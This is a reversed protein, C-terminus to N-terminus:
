GSWQNIYGNSQFYNPYIPFGNLFLLGTINTSAGRINVTSLNEVSGINITSAELNLRGQNNLGGSSVLPASHTISANYTDSNNSGFLLASSINNSINLTNLQTHGDVDIDDKFNTKNYFDNNGYPNLIIQDNLGSNVRVESNWRTANNGNPAPTLTNQYLLKTSHVAQEIQIETIVVQMALVQAQISAVAAATAIDGLASIVLAVIGIVDVGGGGSSGDSGDKGDNGTNGKDGKSGKDGKDGKEGQPISFTFNLVSSSTTSVAEIEVSAPTTSDVTYTTVTGVTINNLKTNLQEQITKTIDINNLTNFEENSILSTNLTATTINNSSTINTFISDQFSNSGSIQTVDGAFSSVGNFTTNQLQCSKLANSMILNGDISVDGIFDTEILQNEGTGSQIISGDVMVIDANTYTATPMSIDSPLTLSNLITLDTVYTTRLTNSGSAGQQTIYKGDAQNLIGINTDQLITSGSTQIIDAEQTLTNIFTSSGFTNSSSSSQTIGKGANFNIGNMINDGIDISQIIVGNFENGKIEIDNVFLSNTHITNSIIDGVTISSTNSNLTTTIDNIQNQITKTVDIGSLANFEANSITSTNLTSTSTNENVILNNTNITVANITEPNSNIINNITDIQNQITQTTDINNLTNFEDNSITSTNLTDTLVNGSSTINTFVSDKFNNSGSIQNMNGVFTSVGSLTTTQLQCSKLANSMTLNGDISVDGIFDSKIFQNDGVGSQIISGSNMIIDSSNYTATPYSIQSPLTLSNLITLDSVYTNRLTNSGVTGLQTIYKGNQQTLIGINTDKLATYGSSQYFDGQQVLTGSVTSNSFTNSSSSSQTIGKGTNFTISNMTNNGVSNDQIIVGNFENQNSGTIEVGNVFLTDTYVSNANIDCLGTLPFKNYVYGDM